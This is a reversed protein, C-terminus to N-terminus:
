NLLYVVFKGPIRGPFHQKGPRTKGLRFIEDCIRMFNM